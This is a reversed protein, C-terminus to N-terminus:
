QEALTVYAVSGQLRLAVAHAFDILVEYKAGGPIGSERVTTQELKAHLSVWNDLELVAKANDLTLPV